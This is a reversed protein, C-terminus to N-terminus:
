TLVLVNCYALDEAEESYTNDLYMISDVEDSINLAEILDGITMDSLNDVYIDNATKGISLTDPNIGAAYAATDFHEGTYLLTDDFAVKGHGYGPFTVGINNFNM